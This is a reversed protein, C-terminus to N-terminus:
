RGTKKVASRYLDNKSFGTDAAALIAAEKLSMGRAKYANLIDEAESLTIEPKGDDSAGRIILVFEGRPATESFHSLAGSLTTHMIEEHLKTMERCVAAERDGWAGLMDRLTNQLKHPAEYFVMTRKENKLENLHEARRKRATSLFGEFCFRRSPLGSASLAATVACPGPVSIVPINNETCLKVLDEGPDSIAPMGADSILACCEGSRLRAIIKEGSEARNHEYYSVLSKKIGFHNLLKVSVRTDEAAIFDATKLTEVARPSFDGLNGLPTGVIYLKGSM